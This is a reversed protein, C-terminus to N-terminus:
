LGLETALELPALVNLPLQTLSRGIKLFRDDCTCFFDTGIEIASALHLADRPKLGKSVFEEARTELIPSLRMDRKSKALIALITSSATANPNRGTEFELVESSAYEHVGSDCRSFVEIIVETELRIRLQSQDDFPRHLCCTDFYILM